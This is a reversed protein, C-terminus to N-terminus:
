VHRHSSFRVWLNVRLHNQTLKNESESFLTSLMGIGLLKRNLDAFDFDYGMFSSTKDGEHASFMLSFNYKGSNNSFEVGNTNMLLSETLSYSSVLQEIMVKPYNVKTEDLLEKLRDFLKDRDQSLIGTEFSENRIKESIAEAEDPASSQASAVCDLVAKDISEKDLKNAIITGKKGDKLAKLAISSNFLTRLLSFKGGDVNLEDVKGSTVICQAHDAGAKKLADLTYIAIDKNTKM